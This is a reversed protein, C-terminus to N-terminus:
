FEQDFITELEKAIARLEDRKYSIIQKSDVSMDAQIPLENLM